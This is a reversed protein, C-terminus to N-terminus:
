KIELGRVGGIDFLWMQRGAGDHPTDICVYRGDPSFRPHTDVRIENDFPYDPSLYVGAIPVRNGTPVHYLYVQQLRNEDPYTDNLIWGGGGPLYTCHGNVTMIGEGVIAPEAGGDARFLYFADGHSARRAWALIHDPDRWIFHSTYGYDDVIRIDSGDARATMMRTDFPTTPNSARFDNIRWRNLFIFRSGDPSFLLHNFWHKKDNIPGRSFPFKMMDAISIVLRRDGTELNVRYIGADAPALEDAHPDQIGPYGYGPRMDQVREFDITMATRGDPCEEVVVIREFYRRGAITHAGLLELVLWRDRYAERVKRLYPTLFFCARSSSWWGIM